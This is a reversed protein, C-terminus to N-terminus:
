KLEVRVPLRKIQLEYIAEAGLEEFAIVQANEVCSQLLSAVGGQVAFYLASNDKISEKVLESREGKGITALVGNEYLLPAFKDMRKATTPGVPGIIENENKPCPGAYFIISNKLEFPLQEGNKIMEVLKKHAMDRATYVTGSLLFEQNVELSKLVEIDEVSIEKLADQIVNEKENEVFETVLEYGNKDVVVSSHRTSHCNVTVCVPMSAIHTSSTKIFIDAVKAQSNKNIYDKMKLAFDKNEDSFFAKKSLVGAYDITGGIGVGLFLPPCANEGATKVVSLVYNLIEEKTASPTFMKVSSMNEAGGGKILINARIVDDRVYDVYVIAPINDQTNTRDFLADKVVSKRFYNSKYCDSIAENVVTIPNKDDLVINEGIELFVVVQGTDQCLPRKNKSAILNNAFIKKMKDPNEYGCEGLKKLTEFVEKSLCTNAKFCADYVAKYLDKSKIECLERM